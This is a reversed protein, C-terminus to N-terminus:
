LTSTLDRIIYSAMSCGFMAPMYSVTGVNSRKNSEGESEIIREPPVVEASYVVTIGQRIGLKHLRKRVMRALKCYDSKSIDAIRIQMPDVKGGSGMSSIIPLKRNYSEYLLFVKPALTDIADAVYDYKDMDLIERIREDKVYEDILTLRINPNIDILRQALVETKKKGVTSHLAILQRNINTENVADGDVLTLAGIGARALMEAAYAGVGGVGVVLVHAKRIKDLAEAGFMLETRAQWM